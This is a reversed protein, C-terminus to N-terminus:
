VQIGLARALAQKGEELTKPSNGATVPTQGGQPSMVRPAQQQSARKAQLYQQMAIKQIEPNSAAQQVFNPDQFYQTPDTVMNQALMGKAALYVTELGAQELQPNRNLLDRMQPLYNQVDGAYHNNLASYENQYQREKVLPEYRSTFEQELKQRINGEFEGLAAFPDAYFNDLFAQKRAEIQEPTQQPQAPAQQAAQQQQMVYAMQQQMLQQQQMMYQQQQNTQTLYRQQEVWDRHLQETEPTRPVIRGGFDLPEPQLQAPPQQVPPQAPDINLDAFLDPESIVLDEFGEFFPEVGEPEAAPQGLILEQHAAAAIDSFSHSASDSFSPAPAPSGGAPVGGDNFTQLVSSAMPYLFKIPVQAHM